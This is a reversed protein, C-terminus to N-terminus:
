FGQEVDGRAEFRGCWMDRATQPWVPMLQGSWNPRPLGRPPEARCDSESGNRGHGGLGHAHEGGWTQPKGERDRQIPWFKCRDCRIADGPHTM